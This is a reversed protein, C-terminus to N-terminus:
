PTIRFITGGNARAPGEGTTVGFLTGSADLTPAAHPYSGDRGKFSHLVTEKGSPTLKFVAGDNAAGGYQTTGYLDGKLDITLGIDFSLPNLGDSGSFSYLLTESGDRKIRYVTGLNSAGGSVTTGYLYGGRGPVLGGSATAGDLVTDIDFYHLVKFSGDATFSFVTGGDFQGGATTTGYLTGDTDRLLRCRPVEGDDGAFSHLITELGDATIEFITGNGSSGGGETVGYLDGAPDMTLGSVPDAGDTPSKAFAHLVTETGDPALKFVIGSSGNGAPGGEATTGYLNGASDSVLGGYPKKGDGTGGFLHLTTLQGQPTLKFVTGGGMGGFFTTGYLNGDVGLLLPSEPDHGMRGSLNFRYIEKFPAANSSVLPAASIALCVALLIKTKARHM